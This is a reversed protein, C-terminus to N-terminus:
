LPRRRHCRGRESSVVDCQGRHPMHRIWFLVGLIEIVLLCVLGKEFLIFSAFKMEKRIIILMWVSALLVLFAVTLCIVIAERVTKTRNRHM